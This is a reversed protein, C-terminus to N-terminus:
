DQKKLHLSFNGALTFFDGSVIVSCLIFFLLFFCGTCLLLLTAAWGQLRGQAAVCKSKILAREKM